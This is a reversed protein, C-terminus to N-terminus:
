TAPREALAHELESSVFRGSGPAPAPLVAPEPVAPEPVAPEPVAPEPVAPEPVPPEAGVAPAPLVAPAAPAAAGLKHSPAPVRTNVSSSLAKMSSKSHLVPGHLGAVM